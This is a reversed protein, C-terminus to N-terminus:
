RRHPRRAPHRCAAGQPTEAPLPLTAATAVFGPRGDSGGPGPAGAGAGFARPPDVRPSPTSSEPTVVTATGGVPTPSSGRPSAARSMGGSGFIGGREGGGGSGARAFVTGPAGGGVRGGDIARPVVGPAFGGRACVGGGNGGVGGVAEGPVEVVGPV